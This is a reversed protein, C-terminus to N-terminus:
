ACVRKLNQNVFELSGRIKNIDLPSFREGLRPGCDLFSPRRHRDDFKCQSEKHHGEQAWRARLDARRSVERVILQSNCVKTDLHLSTIGSGCPHIRWRLYGVVICRYMPLVLRGGLPMREVSYTPAELGFLGWRPGGQDSVAGLEASFGM